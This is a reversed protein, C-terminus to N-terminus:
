MRTLIVHINMSHYQTAYDFTEGLREKMGEIVLAKYATYLSRKNIPKAFNLTNYCVSTRKYYHQRSTSIFNHTM